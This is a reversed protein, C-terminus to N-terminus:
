RGMWGYTIRQWEAIADRGAISEEVTKPARFFAHTRGNGGEVDTPVLLKDRRAPDHLADFLRATM